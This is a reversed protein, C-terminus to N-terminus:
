KQLANEITKNLYKDDNRLTMRLEDNIEHMEDMM